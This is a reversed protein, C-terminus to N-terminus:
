AKDTYVVHRRFARHAVSRFLSPAIGKFWCMWALSRPIVVEFRTREIAEMVAHSVFEPSVVLWPPSKPATAAFLKNFDTRVPGPCLVSVHIGLPRLEHYLSESFGNIAFKSACYGAMNLTGIKGAVSSINLVHGKGRAIMSPLTAHTCYVMGLYNTRMIAEIMEVSTEIFPQRMGIGANNILIDIRGHAALLKGIMNRVQERDAVDCPMVASRPSIRRMEEETRQLRETSRGCGIVVAGRNALDIALRRGIGSSAGTILVVQDQFNM